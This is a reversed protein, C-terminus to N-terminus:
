SLFPNNNIENDITTSGMHGPYVILNKDLSFLKLKISSILKNYDGSPFDTSGISSQFLTDGTFIFNNLMFCMGGPTHGPTAICEIIFDGFALKDKDKIFKFNDIIEKNIIGFVPKNSKMMEYDEKSIYIPVNFNNIVDLVAGTHDFHGHTLLIYKLDLAKDKLLSIIKYSDGGPDIIVAMKSCEEFVIYCNADYDGVVLKEIKMIEEM